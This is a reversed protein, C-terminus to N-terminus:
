GVFRVKGGTKKYIRTQISALLLSPFIERQRGKEHGLRNMAVYYSGSKYQWSANFYYRQCEKFEM